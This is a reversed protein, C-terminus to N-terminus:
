QPSISSYQRVPLSITDSRLLKGVNRFNPLDFKSYHSLINRQFSPSSRVPFVWFWVGFLRFERTSNANKYIPCGQRQSLRVFCRLYCSYYKVIRMLLQSMWFWGNKTRTAFSRFAVTLKRMDTQGDSSGGRVPRIKMSNTPSKELIQLSFELKMLM